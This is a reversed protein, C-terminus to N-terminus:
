WGMMITWVLTSYIMLALVHYLPFINRSHISFNKLKKQLTLLYISIGMQTLLFFLAPALAFGPRQIAPEALHHYAYDVDAAIFLTNLLAICVPLWATTAAQEIEDAQVQRLLFILSVILMAHLALVPYGGLIHTIESIYPLGLLYLSATIIAHNTLILWAVLQRARKTKHKEELRLEIKRRLLEETMAKTPNQGIRTM